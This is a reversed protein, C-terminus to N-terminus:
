GSTLTPTPAGAENGIFLAGRHHLVPLCLQRMRAILSAFHIIGLRRTTSTFGKMDSVLVASVGFQVFGAFGSKSRVFDACPDPESAPESPMPSALSLDSELSAVDAGPKQLSLKHLYAAMFAVPDAAQAVVAAEISAAVAKEMRERNLRMYELHHTLEGSAERVELAPM